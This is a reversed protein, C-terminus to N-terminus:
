DKPQCEKDWFSHFCDKLINETECNGELAQWFEVPIKSDGVAKNKKAQRLATSIEKDNPACELHTLVPRQRVLNLVSDDMSSGMNYVKEYHAELAKSNEAANECLKGESNKFLQIIFKKVHRSLGSKLKSVGEWFGRPNAKAGDLAKINGIMLEDKAKKVEKKVAKRREQLVALEKLPKPSGPKLAKNYARQAMNRENIAARLSSQRLYFWDNRPRESSSLVKTATSALSKALDDYSHNSVKPCHKFESLFEQQFKSRVDPKQLLQRDIFTAKRKCRQKCLNKAVRLTLRIPQHDSEVSLGGYRGADRIRAFDSKRVLFHDIQHGLKSRPNVWTQYQSFHQQLTFALLLV